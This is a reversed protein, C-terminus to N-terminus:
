FPAFAEIRLAEIRTLLDLAAFAVDEDICQAEQQVDGDMGGADLIAVTRLQHEIFPRSAQEGEDFADIGIATILPRTDAGGGGFGASPLDLDDFSGVDGLSKNDQGFSPHDLSGEGPDAM